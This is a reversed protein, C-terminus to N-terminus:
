VLEKVEADIVCDALANSANYIKIQPGVAVNKDILEWSWGPGVNQLTISVNKIVVPAKKVPIRINGVGIRYSGTLASTTIDNFYEIEVKGSLYITFSDIISLGSAVVNTSRCKIYRAVVVSAVVWGSWTSGDSSYNIENTLSGNSVVTILPSFSTVAGIDITATEYTISLFPNRAWQLWTAWTTGDAAFSAWDKQDKSVLRNFEDIYCNTKTDPWQERDPYKDVIVGALRPDGLTTQIYLATSQNGTTDESVIALTYTGAALQNTEYPGSTLLETHLPAMEAWTATTGLKYRIRYGAMDLPPNTLTWSFQRTGDPQRTILFTDCPPPPATKGLITKSKTPAIDLPMTNGSANVTLVAVEVYEGESVSFSFLRSEGPGGFLSPGRYIWGGGNTRSWIAASGSYFDTPQDFTVDLVVDIYGGPRNVLRETVAMNLVPPWYDLRSYNPFNPDIIFNPEELQMLDLSITLSGTTPDSISKGMVLFRTGDTYGQWDDAPCPLQLNDVAVVHGREIDHFRPPIDEVRVTARPVSFWSEWRKGLLQIATTSIGWRDMWERTNSEEWDIESQQNVFLAMEKYDAASGGSKGADLKYYIASRTYLDKQGADVPKFKCHTADLTAFPAAAAFDDYLKATLRGDAGEFLFVGSSVSLQNLMEMADQPETLDRSVYWDSGPTLGVPATSGSRAGSELATFSDSNILRSPIGLADIINLMVRMVNGSYTIKKGAVATLVGTAPDEAMFEEAAPVKKNFRKLINRTKVTIIAREHDSQYDYWTGVFYPEYDSESLGVFGLKCIITKNKLFDGAVMDGVKKRWYLKATLEGITAQQTLDIKSSISSIGGPVIYPLAGQLPIDKHTSLYTYQSDGGVIRISEIIPTRWGDASATLDARIQYYRYPALPTIETVVGLSTWADATNNRGWGTYIISCGTDIVDDLELRSNTAPVTRLDLATAPTIFSGTPLYHTEHTIQYKYVACVQGAFFNAGAVWLLDYCFIFEWLGRELNDITVSGISAVTYDIYPEPSAGVTQWAGGNMRGKVLWRRREQRAESIWFTVGCTHIGPGVSLVPTESRGWCFNYGDVTILGANYPLGTWQNAITVIEEKYREATAESGDTTLRIRNSEYTANIDTLTGAQFVSQTSVDVKIADISEVALLVVPQRNAASAAAIFADTPM